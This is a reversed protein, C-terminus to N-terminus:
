NRNRHMKKFNGFIQRGQTFMTGINNSCHKHLKPNNKRKFFYNKNKEITKAKALISMKEDVIIEFKEKEKLRLVRRIHHDDEDSLTVTNQTIDSKSVFLRIM